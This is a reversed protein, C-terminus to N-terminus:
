AGLHISDVKDVVVEGLDLLVSDAEVVPIHLHVVEVYTDVAVGRAHFAGELGQSAVVM